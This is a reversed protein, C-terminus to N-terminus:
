GFTATAVVRGSPDVLRAQVPVVAGPALTAGWSGNGDVVDFTGVTTVTGDAGVLQCSVPGSLQSGHLTMGVWPPNREIYV